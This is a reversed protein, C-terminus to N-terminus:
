RISQLVSLKLKSIYNTFTFKEALELVAESMEKLQSNETGIAHSLIANYSNGSTVDWVFGNKIHIYHNISGVNSVVPLVGYCAAEAIVKPFGESDSPLLLFHSQILLDHVQATELFGHFVVKDGLFQTQEQYQKLGVGDGVFHMKKIQSFDIQKLASIIRDVGKSSELRGIFILEFPDEFSKHLVM